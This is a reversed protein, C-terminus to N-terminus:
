SVSDEQRIDLSSLKRLPEVSSTVMLAGKASGWVLDPWTESARCFQWGMKVPIWMRVRYTSHLSPEASHLTCHPVISHMTAVVLSVPSRLWPVALWM